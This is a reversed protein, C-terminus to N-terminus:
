APERPRLSLQGARVLLLCWLALQSIGALGVWNDGTLNSIALAIFYPKHLRALAAAFSDPPAHRAVVDSLNLTRWFLRAFVVIGIIGMGTAVELYMNECTGLMIGLENFRDSFHRFGLYGVGTIPHSLFMRGASFWGYVRVLSTYVEFSGRDASVTRAMREWWITAVFPAVILIGVAATVLFRRPMRRWTLLTFMFWALLGSRSQTLFMFVLTLAMMIWGWATARRSQWALLVVWVLLLGIGAENPDGISWGPENVFWTMGARRLTNDATIPAMTFGALNVAALLLMGVVLAGIVRGLDRENHITALGIGFVLMGEVVRGLKLASDFAGAAEGMWVTVLLSAAAAGVYLWASRTFRRVTGALEASRADLQAIPLSRRRMWERVTAVILPFLLVDFPMVNREGSGVSVVVSVVCSLSLVLFGAFPALVTAILVAVGLAAGFLLRNGPSPDGLGIANILAFGAGLLWLPVAIRPGPRDVRVDSM